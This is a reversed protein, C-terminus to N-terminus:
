KVVYKKGDMIYIGRSLGDLKDGVKKGELSYVGDKHRDDCVVNNVSSTWGVPYYASVSNLLCAYYNYGRYYEYPNVDELREDPFVYYGDSKGGWGFNAHFLGLSDRGDIIFAHNSGGVWLPIKRELYGDIMNWWNREIYSGNGEEVMNFNREISIDINYSWNSYAVCYVFKEVEEKEEETYSGLYDDLIKSHDFSMIPLPESFYKKKEDVATCYSHPIKFYHIIQAFAIITCIGTKEPLLNNYPPTQDWKTTILPALPEVNRPKFWSPFESKSSRRTPTKINTISGLMGKVADPLNEEDIDNETSYGIVNSNVVIAFGKNDVGKFISYPKDVGSGRNSTKSCENLTIGKKSMFTQAVDFDSQANVSIALALLAIFLYFKRM